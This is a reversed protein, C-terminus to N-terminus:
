RYRRGLWILMGAFLILEPLLLVTLYFVAQSQNATLMVRSARTGRPRIAILEEEGGLWGVTNLFLDQNFYLNLSRNSVWDSDGFVVARGELDAPAEQSVVSVDSASTEGTAAGADEGSDAGAGENEGAAEDGGTGEDPRATAIAPATWDLAEGTLTLAAALSIPGPADPSDMAVEGSDFLRALDTEAWSGNSTRALTTAEVGSPPEDSPAVSRAMRFITRERFDATIPHTGYDGVVPEVGLRAGAFLQVYQEIVVDNGVQVGRAALLPILDDGSQPDLMVFTKGGRALYRDLATLERDLFPRQPGAVILLDADAPVDPVEGLVLSEVDWGENDLAAKAQGFGTEATSDDLELEGHGTVYYALKRRAGSMRLLANTISQENVDSLKTSEPGVAVHLTGYASIEFEEALEPRKDPDIFEYRFRDSAAAYSDLLDRAEGEEGDRYFARVVVDEDLGELLQRSQPALSFIGQETLDWRVQHQVALYNVIGVVAVTLVTYVIANTGHRTRRGGLSDRFTDVHTFLYLAVMMVGLIVHTLVYLSTWEATILGAILGFSLVILGLPGFTRYIKM